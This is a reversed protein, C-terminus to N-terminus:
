EHGGDELHLSHVDLLVELFEENTLESRDLRKRTEEKHDYYREAIDPDVEQTVPGEIRETERQRLSVRKSGM